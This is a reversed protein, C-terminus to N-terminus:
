HDLPKTVREASTKLKEQRGAIGQLFVCSLVYASATVYWGAYLLLSFTVFDFAHNVWQPGEGFVHSKPKDKSFLVAGYFLLMLFVFATFVQQLWILKFYIAVVLALLAAANSIYWNIQKRLTQSPQTM